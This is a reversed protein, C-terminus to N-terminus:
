GGLDPPTIWDRVEQESEKANGWNGVHFANYEDRIQSQPITKGYRIVLNEFTDWSQIDNKMRALEAETATEKKAGEKAIKAAAQTGIIGLLQDNSESGTVKYGAEAAAQQLQRTYSKEDATLTNALSWEQDSLENQRNLKDTLIQLKTQKDSTFGSLLRASRDVLATYKMKLPELNQEQGQMFLSAKNAVDSGTLGILEKLRGLGTTLKGLNTLLPEKRQTVVGRRQAETLLSERSRAMVDPEVTDLTDELSGIEKSLSVASGRLAPLGSAEELGTYVDLPSKRAKMAMMLDNFATDESANLKQVYDLTSPLQSEDIGVATRGSTGRTLASAGQTEKGIGGTAKFDAEAATPDWGTYGVYKSLDVM